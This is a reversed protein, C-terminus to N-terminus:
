LIWPLPITIGQVYATHCSIQWVAHWSRISPKEFSSMYWLSHFQACTSGCPFTVKNYYICQIIIYMHIAILIHEPYYRGMHIYHGRSLLLRNASIFEFTAVPTVIWCRCYLFPVTGQVLLLSFAKHWYGVLYCLFKLRYVPLHSVKYFRTVTYMINYVPYM